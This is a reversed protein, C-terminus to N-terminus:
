AEIGDSSAETYSRSHIIMVQLFCHRATVAKLNYEVCFQNLIM